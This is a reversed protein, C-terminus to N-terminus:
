ASTRCACRAPSSTVSVLFPWSIATMWPNGSGSSAHSSRNMRQPPVLFGFSLFLLPGRDHGCCHGCAPRRANPHYRDAWGPQPRTRAGVYRSIELWFPFLIASLSGGCRVRCRRRRRRSRDSPVFDGDACQDGELAPKFCELQLRNHSADRPEHLWCSSCMLFSSAMSVPLPVAVSPSVWVVRNRSAALPHERFPDAVRPDAGHYAPDIATM